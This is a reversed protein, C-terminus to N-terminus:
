EGSLGGPDYSCYKFGEVCCAEGCAFIKDGFRFFGGFEFVFSTPKENVDLTGSVSCGIYLYYDHLERGSIYQGHKLVHLLDKKNPQECPYSNNNKVKFNTTLNKFNTGNAANVILTNTTCATTLLLLLTIAKIM